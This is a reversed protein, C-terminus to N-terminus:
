APWHIDDTFNAPIPDMVLLTDRAAMIAGSALAFQEALYLVRDAQEDLTRGKAAALSSLLPATTSGSKIAEAEKVQTGWTEREEDEYGAALLRMRRAMETQVSAVLTAKEADLEEQTKPRVTWHFGWVDNELTAVDNRVAIEGSGVTPAVPYEPRYVDFQALFEDPLYGSPARAGGESWLDARLQGESYPVPTGDYVRIMESIGM